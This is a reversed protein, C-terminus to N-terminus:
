TRSEGVRHFPGCALKPNKNLNLDRDQLSLYIRQVQLSVRAAILILTNVGENDISYNTSLTQLMSTINISM